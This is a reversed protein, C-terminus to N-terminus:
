ENSQFGVVEIPALDEDTVEVGEVQMLETTEMCGMIIDDAIDRAGLTFARTAVMIRGYKQYNERSVLGATTADALSFHSIATRKITKGCIQQYRTFKYETIYDVPQAPIRIIPFKGEKSLKVAHAKNVAIACKDSYQFENYVNGSLDTYWKLPYVGVVDLTTKEEAEKENRCRVCYEPLQADLYITNGDTYQYQPAYDKTCDWTVGARSLLAKIIHVDVGTKGNIVHIHEVCTSFPLRLDQARILVALGDQVSKIGFKESQIVKKLFVEATALQKEDLLNLVSLGTSVDDQRVVIASSKDDNKQKDMMEFLM